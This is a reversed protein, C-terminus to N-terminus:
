DQKKELIWFDDVIQRQLADTTYAHNILNALNKNIRSYPIKEILSKYKCIISPSVKSHIYYDPYCANEGYKELLGKAELQKKPLIYHPLINISEIEKESSNKLGVFYNTKYHNIKKRHYNIILTGEAVRIKFESSNIRQWNAKKPM